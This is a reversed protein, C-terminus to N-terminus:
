FADQEWDVSYAIPDENSRPDSNDSVNEKFIKNYQKNFKFM